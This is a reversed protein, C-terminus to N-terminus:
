RHARPRRGARGGPHPQGVGLEGFGRFSCPVHFAMGERLAADNRTTIYFPAGDMWTPPHGVGVPYGFNHHFVVWEPLPAIAATAAAAVESCRVGARATGVVAALAQQALRELTRARRPTSGHALTAMLPATYRHHAGSFELFTTSARRPPTLGWTSHPIGGREGTAVVVDLGAVSDAGQTLAYRIAAAISSDTAGPEAAAEV